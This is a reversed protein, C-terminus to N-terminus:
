SPRPDRAPSGAVARGLDRELVVRTGRETTEITVAHMLTHMITLGRGRTDDGQEDPRWRGRDEVTIRLTGNSEGASIWVDGPREGYAHEVANNCAEGVALVIEAVESADLDRRTLWANLRRRLPALEEPRAPMEVEFRESEHTLRAVLLAVDDAPPGLAGVVVRLTSDISINETQAFLNALLEIGADINHGRREILGDTYMVLTTPGVIPVRQEIIDQPEAVGLPPSSARDLRIVEHLDDDILLPPLHGACAYSLERTYPDFSVCAVTIIMEDSDVHRIMRRVIEAPSACEYAYARFANRHRGMLMAAGIGKGIVDGVSLHVIGDARRVADYWDGGVEVGTGGAAYHGALDVGDISPLAEPLLSHQLSIALDHEREFLLTREVAQSVQEAFSTLLAWDGEGIPRDPTILALGGIVEGAPNAIPLGYFRRLRRGSLQHIEHLLPERDVRVGRRREKAYSAIQALASEDERLQSWPGATNSRVRPGDEQVLSVVPLSGPFAEALSAILGDVVEDPTAAAALTRTLGSWARARAEYAGTQRRSRRWVLTLLLLVVVAAAAVSVLELILSRRASAYVSSESRDIVIMWGPVPATAYAVIHGGDNSLGRSGTVVGNRGQIRALLPTNEVPALQSFLQQGARDVISLGAYGLELSAKNQGIAKIRTSGALVGSIRGKADRTAVATVIVQQGNTRGILASSVYPTGTTLVTKVYTRQSLDVTGSTSTNTSVGLVGHKDIWGLGGNFVPTGSEVRKFYTHMQGKRLDVVAPAKAISSLTSIQGAFATNVVAAAVVARAKLDDAAAHQGHEYQRWALGASVGVIILVSVVASAALTRRFSSTRQTLLNEFSFGPDRDRRGRGRRPGQDTGSETASTM